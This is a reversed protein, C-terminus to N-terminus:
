PLGDLRGSPIWAAGSRGVDGGHASRVVPSYCVLVVHRFRPVRIAALRLNKSRQNLGSSLCFGETTPQVTIISEFCMPLIFAPSLELRTCKPMNQPGEEIKGQLRGGYEASGTLLDYWQPPQSVAPRGGM